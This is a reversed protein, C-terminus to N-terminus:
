DEDFDLFNDNEYEEAIETWELRNNWSESVLQKVAEDLKKRSNFEMKDLEWVIYEKDDEDEECQIDSEIETWYDNLVSYDLLEVLVSDDLYSVWEENAWSENILDRELDERIGLWDLSIWGNQIADYMAHGYTCGCGKNQNEKMRTDVYDVYWQRDDRAM